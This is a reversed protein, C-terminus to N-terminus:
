WEPAGAQKVAKSETYGALSGAKVREQQGAQRGAQRGAKQFCVTVARLTLWKLFAFHWPHRGALSLRRAHKRGTRGRERGLM